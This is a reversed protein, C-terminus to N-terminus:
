VQSHKELAISWSFFVLNSNFSHKRMSLLIKTPQSKEFNYRTDPRNPETSIDQAELNTPPIKDEWGMEIRNQLTETRAHSTEGGDTPGQMSNTPVNVFDTHASEDHIEKANLFTM